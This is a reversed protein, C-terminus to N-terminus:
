KAMVETVRLGFKGGVVVPEGRAFLRGNVYVDVRDAAACDLEIVSGVGLDGLERARIWKRGLAVRLTSDIQAHPTKTLM